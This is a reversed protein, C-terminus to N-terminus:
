RRRDAATAVVEKYAHWTAHGVIPMAILFGLSWTMFGIVVFGVILLAWVLTAPVNVFLAVCSIIMSTIADTDRDLMLPISVWSIAFVISAFIFGICGYVFLFEVNNLSFLQALFGHMTPMGKNYFLAFVVLSARAWVMMIVALVLALVGINSWRGRMSFVSGLLGSRVNEIRRSIDYLGLALLPGILLFGCTLASLYQPANNLVLNLLLGMATFCAGYFISAGGSERFDGWGLKLWVFPRFMGVRRIPPFPSEEDIVTRIDPPASDGDRGQGPNAM